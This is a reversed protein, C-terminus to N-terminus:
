WWELYIRVIHWRLLFIVVATAFWIMLTWVYVRGIERVPTIINLTVADEKYKAKKILGAASIIFLIVFFAAFGLRTLGWGIVNFLFLVNFVISVVLTLWLALSAIQHINKM